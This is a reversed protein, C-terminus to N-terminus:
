DAEMAEEDPRVCAEGWGRGVGGERGGKETSEKPDRRGAM